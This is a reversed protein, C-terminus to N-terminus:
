FRDRDLGDYEEVGEAHAHRAPRLHRGVQQDPLKAGHLQVVCVVDAPVQRWGVITVDFLCFVDKNQALIRFSLKVKM